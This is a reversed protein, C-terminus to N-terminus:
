KQHWILSFYSLKLILGFHTTYTIMKLKFVGNVHWNNQFFTVGGAQLRGVKLCMAMHLDEKLIKWNHKQMYVQVQVRWQFSAVM